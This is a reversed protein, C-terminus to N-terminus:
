TRQIYITEEVHQKVTFFQELKELDGGKYIKNVKWGCLGCVGVAKLTGNERLSISINQDSPISVGKCKFCKFHEYKIDPNESRNKNELFTKIESGHILKKSNPIYKLSGKKLWKRVTQKHLKRAAYVQCLQNITYSRKTSILNPNYKKSM